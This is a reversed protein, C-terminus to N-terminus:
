MSSGKRDWRESVAVDGAKGDESMEPGVVAFDGLVLKIGVLETHLRWPIRGRWDLGENVCALRRCGIQWRQCRRM